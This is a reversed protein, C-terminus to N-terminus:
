AAKGRVRKPEAKLAGGTLVQIEFQRGKPPSESWAYIAQVSIGLRSALEAVKGPFFNIADESTM